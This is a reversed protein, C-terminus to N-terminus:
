SASFSSFLLDPFDGSWGRASRSFGLFIPFTGFLVFSSLFPLVLGSRSVGGNSVGGNLPGQIDVCGCLIARVWNRHQGGNVPTGLPRPSVSPTGPPTSKPLQSPTDWFLAGLISQKSKHPQNKCDKHSLPTQIKYPTCSIAIRSSSHFFLLGLPGFRSFNWSRSIKLRSQFNWALWGGFGIKQPSNQLDPNFIELSISIKLRSQSNWALNIKKLIQARLSPSPFCSASSFSSLTARHVCVCM